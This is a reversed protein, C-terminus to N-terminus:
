AHMRVDGEYSEADHAGTSEFVRIGNKYGQLTPLTNVEARQIIQESQDQDVEIFRVHPFKGVCQELAARAKKCPGCWVATFFVITLGGNKTDEIIEDFEWYDSVKAIAM